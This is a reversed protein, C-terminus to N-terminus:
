EGNDYGGLHQMPDINSIDSEISNIYEGDGICRNGLVNDLEAVLRNLENM